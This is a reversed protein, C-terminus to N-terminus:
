RTTATSAAPLRLPGESYTADGRGKRKLRGQFFVGGPFPNLSSTDVIRESPSKLIRITPPLSVVFKQSTSCGRKLISRPGEHSLISSAVPFSKPIGSTAPFASTTTPTVSSRSFRCSSPSARLHPTSFITEDPRSDTPLVVWLKTM